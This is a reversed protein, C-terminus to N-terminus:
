GVAHLPHFARRRTPVRRGTESRPPRAVPAPGTRREGGALQRTMTGSVPARARPRSGQGSGPPGDSRSVDEARIGVRHSDVALIRGITHGGSRFSSDALPSRGMLALKIEPGLNFTVSDEM